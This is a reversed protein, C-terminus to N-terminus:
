LVGAAASFEPYNVLKAGGFASISESRSFLNFEEARPRAMHPAYFEMDDPANAHMALWYSGAPLDALFRCYFTEADQYEPTFGILFRDFVPDGRRRAGAALDAVYATDLDALRVISFLDDLNACSLVPIGYRGAVQRLTEAFEPLLATGMHADVHTPRIGDGVAREIQAAIEDAVATPDANAAVAEPRRHFYGESDVLGGVRGVMPSWRYHSWESTLTIHIGLDQDPDSLYDDLAMRYYPCPVMVSASRVVGAARLAKWAHVSGASVGVDDLHPLIITEEPSKM